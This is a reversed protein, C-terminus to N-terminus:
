KHRARFSKAAKKNRNRVKLNPDGFTVKKIGGSKSKVYVAFKKPGGPTLFPKGLKVKRGRYEAEEIKDKYELLYEKLCTACYQSTEDISGVEKGQLKNELWDQMNKWDPDNYDLDELYSIIDKIGAKPSFNYDQVLQQVLKPHAELTEIFDKASPNQLSMEELDQKPAVLKGVLTGAAIREKPYQQELSRVLTELEKIDISDIADKISTSGPALQLVGKELAKSLPTAYRLMMFDVQNLFAKKRAAIDASETPLENEKISRRECSSEGKLFPKPCSTGKVHVHGCRHCCTGKKENIM